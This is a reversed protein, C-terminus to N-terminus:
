SNAGSSAAPRWHRVLQALDPRERESLAERPTGIYLFGAIREDPGLGLAAAADIDYAYWETVWQAGLGLATAAIVMNQCVAAASLRQEWEPIPKDLKPSSVVAIVLPARLFRTREMQLRTEGAEPERAALIAALVQGFAARAPGEFLLFRWPALKGHDPVRAGARLILQTEEASPGPAGLAKASASRRRLLLDLTEPSRGSFLETM